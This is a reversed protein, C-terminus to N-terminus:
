SYVTWTSSPLAHSFIFMACVVVLSVNFCNAHLYCGDAALTPLLAGIGWLISLLTESM